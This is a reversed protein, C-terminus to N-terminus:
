WPGYYIATFLDGWDATPEMPHVYPGDQIITDAAVDYLLAAPFAATSEQPHDYADPEYQLADFALATGRDAM